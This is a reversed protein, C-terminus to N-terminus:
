QSQDPEPGDPVQPTPPVPPELVETVVPIGLVETLIPIELVTFDLQAPDPVPDDEADDPERGNV